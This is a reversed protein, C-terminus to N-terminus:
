TNNILSLRKIKLLKKFYEPVDVAYEYKKNNIMFKISYAHLMLYKNSMMKNKLFNYKSDGVIPFGILSLQKRIQHKRGTVPNLLLLTANINKDLIKYKTIARETFKKDNDYRILLNDLIGNNKDIEGHCISLYSKHIKRIRFLTTFLQAYKRSKAIILIGSTEKDIRHVIYPKTNIFLSNKSILDILNKKIKTGGQVPLGYPKNIVCYNENDEIIFFESKRIDKKSPIYKKKYIFNYDLPNFNNVYVKDNSKLQYSSKVKLKNVTISKNRLSKEILSQPIKFVKKKIWRDIRSGVFDHQISLIKNM